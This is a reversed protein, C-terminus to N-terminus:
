EVEEFPNNLGSLVASTLGDLPHPATTVLREEYLPPWVVRDFYARLAKALTEASNFMPEKKQQPTRLDIGLTNMALLLAAPSIYQDRVTGTGTIGKGQKGAGENVRHGLKHAPYVLMRKLMENAKKKDWGKQKRLSLIKATQGKVVGVFYKTAHYHRFNHAKVGPAISQLYSNIDASSISFVRDTKKKGEKLAALIDLAALFPKEVVVPGAKRWTHEDFGKATYAYRIERGAVPLHRVQLSTLGFRDKGEKGADADVRAHFTDLCVVALAIERTRKNPSHLDQKAHEMIKDHARDFVAVQEWKAQLSGEVSVPNVYILGTKNVFRPVKIKAYYKATPETCVKGGKAEWGAPFSTGNLTVDEHTAPPSWSGRFENHADLEENGSGTFIRGALLTAKNALRDPTGDIIAFERPHTKPTREGKFGAVKPQPTVSHRLYARIVPKFFFKLDTPLVKMGTHEALSDCFNKKFVEDFGRPPTEACLYRALAWGMEETTKNKFLGRSKYPPPFEIGPNKCTKWRAPGAAKAKKPGEIEGPTPASALGNLLWANWEGVALKPVNLAEIDVGSGKFKMAFVAHFARNWDRLTSVNKAACVKMLAVRFEDHDTDDSLGHITIPHDKTMHKSWRIQVKKKPKPRPMSGSPAPAEVPAEAQEVPKIGKPDVHVLKGTKLHRVYGKHGYPKLAKATYKGANSEDKLWLKQYTAVQAHQVATMYRSFKYTGDQEVVVRHGSRGGPVTVAWAGPGTKWVTVKGGAYGFEPKWSPLWQRQPEHEEHALRLPLYEALDDLNDLGAMDPDEGEAKKPRWEVKFSDLIGELEKCLDPFESTGSWEGWGGYALRPGVQGTGSGGNAKEVMGYFWENFFRAFVEHPGNAYESFKRNRRISAMKECHKPGRKLKAVFAVVKKNVHSGPTTGTGGLKQYDLYHGFEHAFAAWGKKKADGVEIFNYTSYYFGGWKKSKSLSPADTQIGLGGDAKYFDFLKLYPQLGANFLTEAKPDNKASWVRLHATEDPPRVTLCGAEEWLQVLDVFANNLDDEDFTSGSLEPDRMFMWNVARGLAERLLTGALPVGKRKSGLSTAINNYLEQDQEDLGQAKTLVFTSSLARSLAENDLVPDEYNGTDIEEVEADSKGKPAPAAALKIGKAKVPVLKGTKTHRTYATHGYPKAAKELDIFFGGKDTENVGAFGRGVPVDPITEDQTTENDPAEEFYQNIPTPDV